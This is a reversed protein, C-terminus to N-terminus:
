RSRVGPSCSSEMSVSELRVLDKADSIRGTSPVPDVIEDGQANAAQRRDGDDAVVPVAVIQQGSNVRSGADVSRSDYLIWLSQRGRVGLRHLGNFGALPGLQVSDVNAGALRQGILSLPLELRMKVLSKLRTVAQDHEVLDGLRVGADDIAARPFDEGPKRLVTGFLQDEDVAAGCDAFEWEADELGVTGFAQGRRGALEGPEDRRAAVFHSGGCGVEGATRIGGDEAREGVVSDEDGAGVFGGLEGGCVGDGAGDVDDAGAVADGGRDDGQEEAPAVSISDASIALRAAEIVIWCSPVVPVADGSCIRM